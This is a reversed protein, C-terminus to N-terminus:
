YRNKSTYRIGIKLISQCFSFELVKLRNQTKNLTSTYLQMTRKQSITDDHKMVSRSHNMLTEYLATQVARKSPM